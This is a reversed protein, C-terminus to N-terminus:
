HKLKGKVNIRIRFKEEDEFLGASIDRELEQPLSYEENGFADSEVLGIDVTVSKSFSSLTKQILYESNKPAEEGFIREVQTRFITTYLM